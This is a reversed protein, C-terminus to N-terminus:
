GGVGRGVFVCVCVCVSQEGLMINIDVVSESGYETSPISSHGNIFDKEHKDVWAAIIM